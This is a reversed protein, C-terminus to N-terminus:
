ASKCGKLSLSLRAVAPGPLDPASVEPSRRFNLLSSVRQPRPHNQRLQDAQMPQQLWTYGELAKRSSQNVDRNAQLCGANSYLRRLRMNVHDRRIDSISNPGPGGQLLGSHYLAIKKLTNTCLYLQIPTNSYYWITNYKSNCLRKTKLLETPSYTYCITSYIFM